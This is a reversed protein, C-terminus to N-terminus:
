KKHESAHELMWSFIKNFSEKFSTEFGDFRVDIKSNIKEIQFSLLEIQNEHSKISTVIGPIKDIECNKKKEIEEQMSRRGEERLKDEHDAKIQKKLEDTELATADIKAFAKAFAIIAGIITTVVGAWIPINEM